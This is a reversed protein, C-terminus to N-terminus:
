KQSSAAASIFGGAAACSGALKLKCRRVRPHQAALLQQEAFDCMKQQQQELEETMQAVRHTLLPEPPLPAGFRDWRTDVFRLLDDLLVVNCSTSKSSRSSGKWRLSEPLVLPQEGDVLWRVVVNPHLQRKAKPEFPLLSVLPHAIPLPFAKAQNVPGDLCTEEGSAVSPFGVAPTDTRGLGCAKCCCCDGGSLWAAQQEFVVPVGSSPQSHQFAAAASLAVAEAETEKGGERWCGGRLRGSSEGEPLVEPVEAAAASNQHAEGASSGDGSDDNLPKLLLLDAQLYCGFQPIQIHAAEVGLAAQLALLASQHTVFVCLGEVDAESTEGVGEALPPPLPSCAAAAASGNAM